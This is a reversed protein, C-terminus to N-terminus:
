KNNMYKKTQFSLQNALQNIADARQILNKTYSELEKVDNSIYYGKSTAMLREVMGTIRIFQIMKRIRPATTKIKFNCKSLGKQMQSNTVAKEKGIKTILGSIMAPVIVNLEYDTLEATLEEFNTIM